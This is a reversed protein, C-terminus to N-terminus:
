NNITDVTNELTRYIFEFTMKAAALPKELEDNYDIEISTLNWLKVLGSLNNSNYIASEVNSQLSNLETEYDGSTKVIVTIEVNLTREQLRPKGMTPYTITEQTPVVVICPLNLVPYLNNKYITVNPINSLLTTLNSLVQLRSYTTM